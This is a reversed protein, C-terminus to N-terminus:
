MVLSGLASWQPSRSFFPGLRPARQPRLRPLFHRLSGACNQNYARLGGIGNFETKSLPGNKSGATRDRSLRSSRRSSGQAPFCRLPVSCQSDGSMTPRRIRIYSRPMNPISNCLAPAIRNLTNSCRHDGVLPKVGRGTGAQAPGIRATPMSAVIKRAPDAEVKQHKAGQRDGLSCQENCGVTVPGRGGQSKRRPPGEM